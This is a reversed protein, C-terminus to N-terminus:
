FRKEYKWETDRMWLRHRPGPKYLDGDRYAIDEEYLTCQGDPLDVLRGRFFTAPAGNIEPLDALNGNMAALRALFVFTPATLQRVHDNHDVLAQHPKCWDHDVIEVGDVLVNEFTGLTLFFWTDFLRPLKKPTIWRALYVLDQSKLELGAEERTERIACQKATELEDGIRDSPDVHGGPFAWLDGHFRMRPSRHLILVRPDAETTDVVIVTAAPIFNTQTHQEHKIMADPPLM